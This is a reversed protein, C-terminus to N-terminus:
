VINLFKKIKNYKISIKHFNSKIKKSNYFRNKITIKDNLSM